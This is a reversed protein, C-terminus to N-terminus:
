MWDMVSRTFPCISFSPDAYALITRISMPSPSWGGWLCISTIPLGKAVLISAGTKRWSYSTVHTGQALLSSDCFLEMRDTMEAAMRAPCTPRAHSGPMQATSVCTSACTPAPIRGDSRSSRGLLQRPGIQSHPVPLYNRETDSRTQSHTHTLTITVPNVSLRTSVCQRGNVCKRGKQRRSVALLAEFAEASSKRRALLWGDLALHPLHM